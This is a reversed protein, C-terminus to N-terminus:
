DRFRSLYFNRYNKINETDLYGWRYDHDPYYETMREAAWRDVWREAKLGTAIIKRKEEQTTPVYKQHYNKWIGRKYCWIHGLEHFLVQAKLEDNGKLAHYNLRVEGDWYVSQGWWTYEKDYIWVIRKLGYERRALNVLKKWTM